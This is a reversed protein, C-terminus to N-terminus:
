SALGVKRKWKKEHGFHSSSSPAKKSLKGKGGTSLSSSWSGWGAVLGLRGSNLKKDMGDKFKKWSREREEWDAMQALMFDWTKSEEACLADDDLLRRAPSTTPSTTTSTTTGTTTTQSDSQQSRQQQHQRQQSFVDPETQATVATSANPATSPRLNPEQPPTSPTSAEAPGILSSYQHTRQQYPRRTIPSATQTEVINNEQQQYTIYLRQSRFMAAAAEGVLDPDEHPSVPLQAALDTEGAEARTSSNGPAMQQPSHSRPHVVSEEHLSALIRTSSDRHSYGAMGTRMPPSARASSSSASDSDSVGNRAESPGQFVPPFIYRAINDYQSAESARRKAVNHYHRAQLGGAVPVWDSVNYLSHLHSNTLHNTRRRNIDNNSSSSSAARVRSGPARQQSSAIGSPSNLTNSSAQNRSTANPNFLTGSESGSNNIPYSGSHYSPAASVYSPANSHISATEPDSLGATQRPTYPPLPEPFPHLLSRAPHFAM